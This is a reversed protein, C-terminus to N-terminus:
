GQQTLHSAAPLWYCIHLCLNLCLRFTLDRGVEGKLDSLSKLIHAFHHRFTLLLAEHSILFYCFLLMVPRYKGLYLIGPGRERSELMGEELRLM